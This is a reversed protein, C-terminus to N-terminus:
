GRSVPEVARQIRLLMVHGYGHEGSDPPNRSNHRNEEGCEVYHHDSCFETLVGAPYANSAYPKDWRRLISVATFRLDEVRPDMRLRADPSRENEDYHVHTNGPHWGAQSLGTWRELEVEVTVAGASPVYVSVTAPTYETGREVLVQTLGRPADVSFEGACYFFRLGSGVKLIADRPHLFMGGSSLVHVRAEVPQGTAKEIIKAALRGM